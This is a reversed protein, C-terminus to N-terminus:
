KFGIKSPKKTPTPVSFVATGGLLQGLAECTNYISRYIDYGFKEIGTSDESPKKFSRENRITNAITNSKYLASEERNVDAQSQQLDIRSSLEEIQKRVLAYQEKELGAKVLVEQTNADLNDWKKSETIYQLMCYGTAVHVNESQEKNLKIQSQTLKLNTAIIDNAYSNQINQYLEQAVALGAKAEDSKASAILGSIEAEIRAPEYSAQVEKLKAEANALRIESFSKQLALNTQMALLGRNSYGGSSASSIHAMSGSPTSAGNSINGYIMQPNLGAAKMDQVQRQYSTNSMDEQWQRNLSAEQSSFVRAKEAENANFANQQKESKGLGTFHGVFGGVANGISNAFADKIKGFFSM